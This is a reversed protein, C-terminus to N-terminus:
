TGVILRGAKVPTVLTLPDESLMTFIKQDTNSNAKM